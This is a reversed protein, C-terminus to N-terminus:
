NHYKLWDNKHLNQSMLGAITVGYFNIVAAGHDRTEYIEYCEEEYVGKPRTLRLPNEKCFHPPIM